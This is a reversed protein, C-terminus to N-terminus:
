NSEQTLIMLTDREATYRLSANAKKHRSQSASLYGWKHHGTVCQTYRDM